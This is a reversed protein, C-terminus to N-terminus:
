SERKLSQNLRELTQMASFCQAISSNPERGQKIAALFERDELEIGNLSVDVNSVDIKKDYGDYLDDYVAKYTGNDCIYRFFSGL